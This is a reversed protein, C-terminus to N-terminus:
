TSASTASWAEFSQVYCNIAEKHTISTTVGTVPDTATIDSALLSIEVQDGFSLTAFDARLIYYTSQSVVFSTSFTITGAADTTSTPVCCSCRRRTPSARSRRM